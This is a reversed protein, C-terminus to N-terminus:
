PAPFHTLMGNVECLKAATNKILLKNLKKAYNRLYAKQHCALNKPFYHKKLEQLCARFIDPCVGKPPVDEAMNVPKCKVVKNM